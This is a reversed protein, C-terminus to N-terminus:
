RPFLEPKAYESIDINFHIYLDKEGQVPVWYTDLVQRFLDNYAVTRKTVGEELAANALCEKHSEKIGTLEYCKMGPTIGLDRALKNVAVITRSKKLLMVVFPFADWTLYFAKIIEPKIISDANNSVDQM